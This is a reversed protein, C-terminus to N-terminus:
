TQVATWLWPGVWHSFFGAGERHISAKAFDGIVPPRNRNPAYERRTVPPTQVGGLPSTPLRSAVDRSGSSIPRGRKRVQRERYAKLWTQAQAVITVLDAVVSVLTVIPGMQIPDRGTSMEDLGM